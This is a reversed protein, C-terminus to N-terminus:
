ASGRERDNFSIRPNSFNIKWRIFLNKQRMILFAVESTSDFLEIAIIVM